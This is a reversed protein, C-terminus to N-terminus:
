RTQDHRAQWDSRPRRGPDRHGAALLCRLDRHLEVQHPHGARVLVPHLRKRQHARDPRPHHRNEPQGSGGTGPWRGSGAFCGTRGPRDAVRRRGAMGRRRHRGAALRPRPWRGRVQCAPRGGHPHPRPHCPYRLRSDRHDWGHDGHHHPGRHVRVPRGVGVAPIWWPDGRCIGSRCRGCSQGWALVAVALVFAAVVQLLFLWGITPITRYGTLYLDLHIAATAALLGAGAVRLVLRQPRRLGQSATTTDVTM